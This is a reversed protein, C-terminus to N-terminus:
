PQSSSVLRRRLVDYEARMVGQPFKADYRELAEAALARDVRLLQQARRLLEVEEDLREAGLREAGLREADLREAAPRETGLREAGPGDAAALAGGSPPLSGAPLASGDEVDELDQLSLAGQAGLSSGRSSAGSASAGDKAAGEKSALASEPLPAAGMRTGVRTARSRAANPAPASVPAPELTSAPTSGSEHAVYGAGAGTALAVGLVAAGKTVSVAGALGAAVGKAGALTLGVGAAATPAVSAGVATGTVAVGTAAASSAAASSAAASSAAASSAAASSASMGGAATGAGTTGVGAGGTAAGGQSFLGGVKLSLPLALVSAAIRRQVVDRQRSPLADPRSEGLMFERLEAAVSPDDLFRIPDSTM